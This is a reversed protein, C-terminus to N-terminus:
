NSKLLNNLLVAYKHQQFKLKLHQSTIIAKLEALAKSFTDNVVLYDFEDYHSIETRADAMRRAIVDPNDQGRELLRKELVDFSPPIIFISVCQSMKQKIQQAGQWDIELIVSMGAKLKKEVWEQTTGYHHDFVKAHELFAKKKILELFTSESVFHYDVGDKEGPRKARTTHSVSIELEPIDEVLANVLSTKGGGSPASIIFLTGVNTM